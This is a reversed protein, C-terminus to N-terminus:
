QSPLVGGGFIRSHSIIYHKNLFPPKLIIANRGFGRIGRVGSAIEAYGSIQNKLTFGGSGASGKGCFKVTLLLSHKPNWMFLKDMHERDNHAHSTMQLQQFDQNQNTRAQVQNMIFYIVKNINCLASEAEYIVDYLYEFYFFNFL